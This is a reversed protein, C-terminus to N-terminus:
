NLPGFVIDEVLYANGVDNADHRVTATIRRWKLQTQMQLAPDNIPGNIERIKKEVADIRLKEQNIEELKEKVINNIPVLSVDVRNLKYDNGTKSVDIYDGDPIIGIILGVPFVENGEYKKKDLVKVFDLYQASGDMIMADPVVFKAKVTYTYGARRELFNNLQINRLAERSKTLLLKDNDAGFHPGVTLTVTQGERFDWETYTKKCSSLVLASAM